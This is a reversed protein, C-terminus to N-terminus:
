ESLVGIFGTATNVLGTYVIYNEDGAAMATLGSNSSATLVEWTFGGDITRLVYGVPGATDRLMFGVYDDVFAIAHVQGIGSGVWGARAQWTDGGDDSFFTLGTATGVWLTGDAKIDVCNLAPAGTVVANTAVWNIGDVTKAVVGGTGNVAYGDLGDAALRIQNYANASIIGSEQATWTAGGDSSFYIFGAASALWIHHSDLAFITGPKSAGHGAAAGGLTVVRWTAGWDDSYATQGQAGAPPTKGVIMRYVDNGMDVIACAMIHESTIAFPFAGTITWTQGGDQTYYVHAKAVGGANCVAVGYKVPLIGTDTQLMAVDNFAYLETSGLRRGTVDVVEIVPPTASVDFSATSEKDDTHHLLNTHKKTTNRVDQLIYARVWNTFTDARGGDRQLLIMGYQGKNRELWTRTSWTLQSLTTTVPDPPAQTSGVTKYKGWVDFCRILAMAGQPENIDGVDTCGVYQGAHNPGDPFVFLAGDSTKLVAQDSM